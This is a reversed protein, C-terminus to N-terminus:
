PWKIILNRIIGYDSTILAMTDPNLGHSRVHTGAQRRRCGNVLTSDNQQCGREM